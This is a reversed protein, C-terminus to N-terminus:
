TNPISILWNYYKDALELVTKNPFDVEGKREAEGAAVELARKRCDQKYRQLEIEIQNSLKKITQLAENPKSKIDDASKFFTENYGM